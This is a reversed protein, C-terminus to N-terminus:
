VFKSVKGGAKVLDEAIERRSKKELARAGRRVQGSTVGVGKAIDKAITVAGELPTGSTLGTAVDLASVIKKSTNGVKRAAIDVQKAAKRGLQEGKKLKRGIQRTTKKLKSGLSM